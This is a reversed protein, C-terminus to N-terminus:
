HVCVSESTIISKHHISEFVLSYVFTHPKGITFDVYVAYLAKPTIRPLSKKLKMPYAFFVKYVIELSKLEPIISIEILYTMM